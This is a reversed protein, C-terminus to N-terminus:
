RPDAALRGRVGVFRRMPTSLLLALQALALVAWITWGISLGGSAVKQIWSSLGGIVYIVVLTWWAFRSRQLLAVVLLAFLALVVFPEAHGHTRAWFSPRAVAVILPVVWLVTFAIPIRWEEPVRPPVGSLTSATGNM